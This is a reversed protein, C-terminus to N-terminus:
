KDGKEGTVIQNLMKEAKPVDAKEDIDMWLYDDTYCPKIIVREFMKLLPDHYGANPNEKVLKEGEDFFEETIEASFKYMGIAYGQSEGITRHRGLDYIRDDKILLRPSDLQYGYDNGDTGVASGSFELMKKLIRYDFVMDGNIVVFDDGCLIDRAQMLSYLNNTSEYKPNLVSTISSFGGVNNIEALLEKAQYGLVPVIDKGGAKQVNKLLRLLLKEGNLEIFAKHMGGYEAQIRRGMGAWLIVVKIM